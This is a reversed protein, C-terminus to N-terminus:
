RKQLIGYTPVRCGSSLSADCERVKSCWVLGPDAHLSHLLVMTVMKYCIWTSCEACLLRLIVCLKWRLCVCVCRIRIIKIRQKGNRIDFQRHAFYGFLEAPFNTSIKNRNRTFNNEWISRGRFLLFKGPKAAAIWNILITPNHHTRVTFANTENTGNLRKPQVHSLFTITEIKAVWFKLRVMTRPLMLHNRNKSLVRNM